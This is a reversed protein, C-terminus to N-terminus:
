ITLKLEAAVRLNVGSIPVDKAGVADGELADAHVFNAMELDM